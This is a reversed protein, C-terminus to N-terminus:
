DERNNWSMEAAPVTPENPGEAGCDECWVSWLVDASDATAVDLDDSGCFPCPKLNM